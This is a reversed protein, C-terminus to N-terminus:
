DFLNDAFDLGFLLGRGRPYLGPSLFIHAFGFKGGERFDMPNKVLARMAAPDYIVFGVAQRGRLFTM